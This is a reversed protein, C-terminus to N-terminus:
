NQEKEMKHFDYIDLCMKIIVPHYIGDYKKTPNEFNTILYGNDKAFQVFQERERNHMSDHIHNFYRPILYDQVFVVAENYQKSLHTKIIDPNSKIVKIIANWVYDATNDYSLDKLHKLYSLNFEAKDKKAKRAANIATIIRWGMFDREENTIFSSSSLCITQEGNSCAMSGILHTYYPILDKTSNIEIKADGMYVDAHDVIEQPNNHMECWDAFDSKGTFKSM